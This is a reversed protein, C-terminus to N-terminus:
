LRLTLSKGGRLGLTAADIHTLDVIFSLLSSSVHRCSSMANILQRALIGRPDMESKYSHM